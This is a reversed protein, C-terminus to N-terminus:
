KMKDSDLILACKHPTRTLQLAIFIRVNIESKINVLKKVTNTFLKQKDHLTTTSILPSFNHSFQKCVIM